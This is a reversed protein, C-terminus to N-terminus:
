SLDVLVWLLNEFCSEFSRIADIVALIPLACFKKRSSWGSIWSKLVYSGKGLIEFMCIIKERNLSHTKREMESVVKWSRTRKVSWRIKWKENFSHTKREMEHSHKHLTRKVSWRSGGCAEIIWSPFTEFKKKLFVGLNGGFKHSHRIKM